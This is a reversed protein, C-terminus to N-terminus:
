RKSATLNILERGIWAGLTTSGAIMLGGAVLVIPFISGGGGWMLVVAMAATAGAAIGLGSVRLAGGLLGVVFLSGITFAAARGSNLFWPDHLGGFWSAWMLVEVAHAALFGLLGVVFGFRRATVSPKLLCV